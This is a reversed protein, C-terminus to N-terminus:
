EVYTSNYENWKLFFVGGGHKALYNAGGAGNV